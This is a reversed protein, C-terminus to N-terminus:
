GGTSSWRYASLGELERVFLEDGSVALHGWTEEDSVKRTDLLELEESNAQMLLLEGGSDLALIRGGRHAMSWYKGFRDSSRWKSRGTAVDICDLRQNGLHVYLHDDLVIPSSMYAWGKYTWSEEVSFTGEVERVTLMFSGNKYPSTFVSDGIVVPTVINMGRFNPIPHSWLLDGSDPDVGHLKQRTLVVIQSRGALEALIPSSFAGSSTMGTAGQLARWVVEGTNRDVKVLSNAAQLYLHDGALLPSSAFGFDPVDMEFEQPFDLIWRVDGSEVDIARLVELMDGVYLMESDVAPTSRVWDGNDRAFFPVDGRSSWATRWLEKGTERDLARVVVSEDKRLTEVSFM